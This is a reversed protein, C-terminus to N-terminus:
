PAGGETDVPETLRVRADHTLTTHGGVLVIEGAQVMDTDDSPVIEVAFENELGTTVYRWKARGTDSGQEDPEFVFVVERRSREVIAEKAVSVRDEFLQGAIRVTAHMGPLIRSQPNRLRITVRGVHSAPDVVPNVTVVTGRFEEGPFATFAVTADRGADLVAIESELVQVDVDVSSVDVVTAVSDAVSLRSGVDVALNAIRGAYPARIETKSFNYRAKELRAEAGALGSRVRAQRQREDLLEPDDIQDDGLTLDQYEAQAQELAGEAEDLDLRYVLPDIRAILAGARVFDGERVAVEVVPGSVEAHQPAARLAAAQGEASVWLVFTGSEVVAGEVPVAVGTAFASAAATSQAAARASDVVAGESAAGESERDGRLRLFVGTLGAAGVLFVVITVIYRSKM